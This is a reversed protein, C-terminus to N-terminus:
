LQRKMYERREEKRKAYEFYENANRNMVDVLYQAMEHMQTAFLVPIGNEDVGYHAASHEIGAVMREFASHPNLGGSVLSNGMTKMKKSRIAVPESKLSELDKEPENLYCYYLWIEFCPNSVIWQRQEADSCDKFIKELQDYFEDVDSLLFVKDTTDLNYVQSDIKFFGASKIENWREQMQYPQLGQGKESMFAVRLSHLERQRILEQLFDKERKEGGSIVFVLNTSLIGEEKRYALPVKKVVVSTGGDEKSETTLEYSPAEAPTRKSDGKSYTLKSLDM